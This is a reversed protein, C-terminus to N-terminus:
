AQRAPPAMFEPGVPDTVTEDLIEEIAQHEEASLSWGFVDDLAAHQDPTRAGWLVATVPAQDLLWRVALQVVGVGHRHRALAELRAVAELYQGRRPQAFKPDLNRLDDGAFASDPRITGTLLGRCLAGYAILGIGHERCYPVVDAEIAREFLNYPPQDTHLPAERRFAAMQAPSFNSVGIARIKGAELLGYMAEATEEPAVLPDPWHVQYLDIHDTGLRRLSAELERRVRKASANRRINGREDWELGAKTALVVDERRGKLAQGVLAECRGFGCVPATDLLTIGRELAADLAAAADGGRGVGGGLAWTGLGIRSVAIDTGPIRTHEM